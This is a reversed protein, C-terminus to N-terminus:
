IVCRITEVCVNVGFRENIKREIQVPTIQSNIEISSEVFEEIDPTMKKNVARGRKKKQIRKEKNYVQIIKKATEYEINTLIAAKRINFGEIECKKVLIERQYDSYTINTNEEIVTMNYFYVRPKFTALRACKKPARNLTNQPFYQHAGLAM